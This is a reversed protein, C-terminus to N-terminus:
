LAALARAVAGALNANNRALMVNAALSAGGTAANRRALLYPTLAHGGIGEAAAARTAEAIVREMEAADLAHEAPIPNAILMGGLKLRLQAALLRAIEEPTECRRDVPRGSSRAYFAPFEATRYGIVPVGLSELLELTKPIDLISKAGACVVAVPTRALEYLDASVDMTSEVGRHVGGIGGTAFVPIGAMAAILMTASVTTAGSERRAVLGALDRRSAKGIAKDTALRELGAADLGVCLKGDLVAITAPVVGQGRLEGELAQATEFNRPWPMGHAVITSELAVVPRRGALAAAVEPSVALDSAATM